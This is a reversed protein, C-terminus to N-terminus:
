SSKLIQFNSDRIAESETSYGWITTGGRPVKLIQNRLTFLKCTLEPNHNLLDIKFKSNSIKFGFSNKEKEYFGTKSFHIM